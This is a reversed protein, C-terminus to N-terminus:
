GLLGRAIARRRVRLHELGTVKLSAPMVPTLSRCLASLLAFEADDLRTWRIELRRRIEPEILGTGGLWM